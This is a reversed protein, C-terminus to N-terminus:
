VNQSLKLVISIGLKIVTQASKTSLTYAHLSTKMTYTILCDMVAWLLSTETRLSIPRTMHRKLSTVMQAVNIHSILSINSNKQDSIFRYNTKLNLALHLLESFSMARTELIPLECFSAGM